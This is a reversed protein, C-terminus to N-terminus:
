QNFLLADILGRITSVAKKPNVGRRIEIEIIEPNDVIKQVRELYGKMQSLIQNKYSESEVEIININDLSDRIQHTSGKYIVRISNVDDLWAIVLNADKKTCSLEIGHYPDFEINFEELNPNIIGITKMSYSLGEFESCMKELNARNLSKGM